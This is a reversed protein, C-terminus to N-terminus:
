EHREGYIGAVRVRELVAGRPGTYIRDARPPIDGLGGLCVVPAERRTKRADSGCKAVWDRNRCIKCASSRGLLGRQQRHFQDLPKTVGCRTCKKM